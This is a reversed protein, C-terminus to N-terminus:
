WGAQHQPTSGKLPGLRGLAAEGAAADRGVAEALVGAERLARRLGRVTTVAYRLNLELADLAVATRALVIVTLGLAALSLPLALPM